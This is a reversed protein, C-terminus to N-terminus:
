SLKSFELNAKENAQQESMGHAMLLAVNAALAKQKLSDDKTKAWANMAEFSAVELVTLAKEKRRFRRSWLFLAALVAMMLIVIMKANM